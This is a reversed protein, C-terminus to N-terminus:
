NRWVVEFDELQRDLFLKSEFWYDFIEQGNTLFLFYGGTAGERDDEVSIEWGAYEGGLVSGKLNDPM